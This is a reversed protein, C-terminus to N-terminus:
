FLRRSKKENRIGKKLWADDLELTILTLSYLTLLLGLDQTVSSYM